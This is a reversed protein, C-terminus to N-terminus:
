QTLAFFEAETLLYNIEGTEDKIWKRGNWTGDWMQGAAPNGLSAPDTNTYTRFVTGTGAIVHWASADYVLKDDANATKNDFNAYVGQVQARYWDGDVPSAIPTTTLTAIGQRHLTEFDGTIVDQTRILQGSFPNYQVAM